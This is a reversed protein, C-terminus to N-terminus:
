IKITQEQTTHLHERPAASAQTSQQILFVAGQYEGPWYSCSKFIGIVYNLFVKGWNNLYYTSVTYFKPVVFHYLFYYFKFIRLELKQSLKHFPNKKKKFCLFLNLYKNIIVILASLTFKSVM